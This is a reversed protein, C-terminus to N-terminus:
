AYQRIMDLTKMDCSVAGKRDGHITMLGRPGPVKLVSYAFHAVAMFKKLFPQGLICNYASDFDVVEFMLFESRTNEGERLTVQLNIRRHPYASIGPMIGYFPERVPLLCKRPLGLNNYMNAFLLNLDSGSDILTRGVMYNGIYPNIILPLLPGDYLNLTHDRIDFQILVESWKLRKDSPETNNVQQEVQKLKTKSTPTTTGGYIITIENEGM